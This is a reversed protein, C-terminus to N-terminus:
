VPLSAPAARHSWSPAQSDTASRVSAEVGGGRGGASQGLVQGAGKPVTTASQREVQAAASALAELAPSGQPHGVASAGMSPTPTAPLVALPTWATLSMPWHASNKVVAAQLERQEVDWKNREAEDPESESKPQRRLDVIVPPLNKRDVGGGLYYVCSSPLDEAM